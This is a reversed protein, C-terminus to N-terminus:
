WAWISWAIIMLTGLGLRVVIAWGWGILMDRMVLLAENANHRYAYEAVFLGALCALIGGIPTLLLSFVLGAALAVAISVWRAGSQRAKAGMLVNDALWGVIALLTLLVFWWGGGDGFNNAIGYLLALAWIVTIGPFIPIILGGLGIIMGALLVWKLSLELWPEMAIKGHSRQM